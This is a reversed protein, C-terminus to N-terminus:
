ESARRRLLERAHAKQGSAWDTLDSPQPANRVVNDVQKPPATVTDIATRNRLSQVDPKVLSDATATGTIEPVLRSDQNRLQSLAQEIQEPTRSVGNADRSLAKRLRNQNKSVLEEATMYTNAAKTGPLEVQGAMVTNIKRSEPLLEGVTSGAAYAGAGLNPYGADTLSQGIVTSGEEVKNRMSDYFGPTEADQAAKARIAALRRQDIESM